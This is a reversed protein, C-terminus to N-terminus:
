LDDWNVSKPTSTEETATEGSVPKGTDPDFGLDEMRKKYYMMHSDIKAQKVEKSDSNKPAANQINEIETQMVRGTGKLTRITALFLNNVDADFTGQAIAGKTPMNALNSITAVGSELAGSPANEADTKLKSYNNLVDKAGLAVAGLDSSSKGAQKAKAVDYAETAGARKYKAAEQAAEQPTMGRSLADQYLKDEIRNGGTATKPPKFAGAKAMQQITGWIQNVSAGPNQKKLTDFATQIDMQAGPQGGSQSQQLAASARPGSTLQGDTSAGARRFFNLREMGEPSMMAGSVPDRVKGGQMPEQPVRQPQFPSRAAPAAAQPVAQTKEILYKIQDFTLGGNNRPAPIQEDVQEDEM